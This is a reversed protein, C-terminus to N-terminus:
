RSAPAEVSERGELVVLNRHAQESLSDGALAALFKERALAKEGSVLFCVGLNGLAEPFGPLAEEVLRYEERAADLRGAARHANGLNFVLAALAQDPKADFLSYWPRKRLSFTERYFSDTRPIGRRLTEINRAPRDVSDASGGTGGRDRGTGGRYRVAIHGPLFVPVLPLDLSRGLALYLLVLGVCSGKRHALVLSPVSASLPASDLIPVIRLSDFVFANIVAIRASDAAVSDAFAVAALAPRLRLTYAYLSEALGSRISEGPELGLVERAALADLSVLRDLFDSPHKHLIAAAQSAPDPPELSCAAFVLAAPLVARLLRM